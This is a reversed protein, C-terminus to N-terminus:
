SSGRRLSNSLTAACNSAIRGLLATFDFGHFQPMRGRSDHAVRCNHALISHRGRPGFAAQPFDQVLQSKGSLDETVGCHRGISQRPNLYVRPSLPPGIQSIQPLDQLTESAKKPPSERRNSLRPQAAAIGGGSTTFLREQGRDDEEKPEGLSM